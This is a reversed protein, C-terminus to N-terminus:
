QVDFETGGYRIYTGPVIRASNIVQVSIHLVNGSIMSEFNGEETVVAPVVTFSGDAMFYTIRVYVREIEATGAQHSVNGSLILEDSNFEATASYKPDVTEASSFSCLMVILLMAVTLLSIVKKM